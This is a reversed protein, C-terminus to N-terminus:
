FTAYLAALRGTSRAVTFKGRINKHAPSGPHFPHPSLPGPLLLLFRKSTPRDAPKLAEGMDNGAQKHSALGPENSSERRASVAVAPEM